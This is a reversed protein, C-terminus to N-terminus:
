GSKRAWTTYFFVLCSIGLFPLFFLFFFVCTRPNFNKKTLPSLSHTLLSLCCLKYKVNGLYCINAVETIPYWCSFKGKM